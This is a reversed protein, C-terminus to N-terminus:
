KQSDERDGRSVFVSNPYTTIVSSNRQLPKHILICQLHLDCSKLCLKGTNMYVGPVPSHKRHTAIAATFGHCHHLHMWLLERLYIPNDVM